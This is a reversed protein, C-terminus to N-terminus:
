AVVTVTGKMAPHITCTYKYSGPEEFAQVFTGTTEVDSKFSEDNAVVNHPTSGDEFRWTVKGGVAVRVKTPQFAIDKVVVTAERPPPGSAATTDTTDGGGGGCGTLSVAAAVAGVLLVLRKM